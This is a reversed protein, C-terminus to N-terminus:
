FEDAGDTLLSEMNDAIKVAYDIADDLQEKSSDASIKVVYIAMDDQKVWAGMKNEHADELLKNAIVASFGAGEARYAPAWIERIRHSGYTEVNSLVFVLQSRDDDLGFTLKYDGDDDITYEYDLQDLQKRIAPDAPKAQDVQNAQGEQGTQDAPDSQAFAPGCLPLALLVPLVISRM